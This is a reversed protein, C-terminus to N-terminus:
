ALRIRTTPRGGNSTSVEAVVLGNAQLDDIAQHRIASGLFQTKRGLETMRMPGCKKLTKLIVGQAEGVDALTPNKAAACHAIAGHLAEISQREEAASLARGVSRRFENDITIYLRIAMAQKASASCGDEVAIQDLREAGQRALIEIATEM